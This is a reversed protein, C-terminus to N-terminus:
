LELECLLLGPKLAPKREAKDSLPSQKLSTKSAWILYKNISSFTKPNKQLDSYGKVEIGRRLKKHQKM